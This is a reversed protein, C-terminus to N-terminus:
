IFTWGKVCSGNREGPACTTRRRLRLNRETGCVSEVSSFLLSQQGVRWWARTEPRLMGPLLRRCEDEDGRMVTEPKGGKALGDRMLVENNAGSTTTTAAGGEGSTAAGGGGDRSRRRRSAGHELLFLRLLRRDCCFNEGTGGFFHRAAVPGLMRPLRDWCGHYGTGSDKGGPQLKERRDSCRAIGTGAGATAPKLM